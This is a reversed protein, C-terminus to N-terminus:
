QSINTSRMMMPLRICMEEAKGPKRPFDFNGSLVHGPKTLRKLLALGGCCM